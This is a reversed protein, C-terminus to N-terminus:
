EPGRRQLWYRSGRGFGGAAILDLRRLHELDNQLTRDSPPTQMQARIERLALADVQSLLQLIIRQRDTLNHEIRHPAVYGSPLFRVGVASGQELFEPEPRGAQVCLDVILQTGRGWQEVLGRMYFADAILPNRPQSLHDRKLDDVTLDFPLSGDSWIELRDDYIALSVAGGARSYDRHCIANVLAERLAIPPFLPEDIRELVGPEIRGAIPLHRQLFGMGEDLLHFGSGHIQRNDLFETKNIGRFRAMRLQCQPYDPLFRKGFLVVAANLVRGRSLLGLRALIDSVDNGTTAPLRGSAIGSRATRLIEEHDLDDIAVSDAASNDWRQKSHIRQLLLRQYNEQPMLATTTGIREFPRGDFTFPIGDGELGAELVILQLHTDPIDVIQLAIPAAPEFKRLIAAIAQQIRDAVQQGRIRGEPTAGVIVTGGGGNLFACLTEAAGNLMATSKKFERTASEGRAVVRM